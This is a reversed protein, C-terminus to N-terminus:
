PRSVITFPSFADHHGDEQVRAPKGVCKPKTKETEPNMFVPLSKMASFSMDASGWGCTAESRTQHKTAKPKQRKASAQAPRKGKKSGGEKEGSM